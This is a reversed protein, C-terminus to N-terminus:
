LVGLHEGPIKGNIDFSYLVPSTGSFLKTECKQTRLRNIVGNLNQLVNREQM